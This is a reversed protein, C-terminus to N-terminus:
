PYPGPRRMTETDAGNFKACVSFTVTLDSAHPNDTILVESCFETRHRPTNRFIDNYDAWGWIYLRNIGKKAEDFVAAPIILGAGNIVAKPGLLVRRVPISPMDPFNYDEPMKEKFLAWSANTIMERTPTLGSNEWRPTIQYAPMQKSDIIRQRTFDKIVVFARQVSILAERTTEDTRVLARWQFFSIFASIVAVLVLAGTWCALARTWKALEDKIDGQRNAEKPDATGSKKPTGSTQHIPSWLRQRVRMVGKKIASIKYRFWSHFM